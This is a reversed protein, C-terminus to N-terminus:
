QIILTLKLEMLRVLIKVKKEGVRGRVRIIVGQGKGVVSWFDLEFGKVMEELGGNFTVATLVFNM